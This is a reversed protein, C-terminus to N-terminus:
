GPWRGPTGRSQSAPGMKKVINTSFIKTTEGAELTFDKQATKVGVDVRLRGENAGALCVSPSASYKTALVRVM